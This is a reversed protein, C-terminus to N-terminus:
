LWHVRGLRLTPNHRETKQKNKSMIRFLVNIKMFVIKVLLVALRSFTAM